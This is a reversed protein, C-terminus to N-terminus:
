TTGIINESSISEEDLDEAVEHETLSQLESEMAEEWERFFKSQMSEEYSELFEIM